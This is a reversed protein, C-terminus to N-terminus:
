FCCVQLLDIIDCLFLSSNQSIYNKIIQEILKWHFLLNKQIFKEVTITRNMFKTNGCLMIFVDTTMLTYCRLSFCHIVNTKTSTTWTHRWLSAELRRNKWNLFGSLKFVLCSKKICNKQLTSSSPQEVVYRKLFTAKLEGKVHRHTTGHMGM